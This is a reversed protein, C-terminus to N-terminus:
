GPGQRRMKGEQKFIEPVLLAPPLQPWPDPMALGGPWSMIGRSRGPPRIAAMQQWRQTAAIMDGWTALSSLYSKREERREWMGEGCETRKRPFVEIGKM